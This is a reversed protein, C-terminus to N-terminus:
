WYLHIPHCWREPDYLDTYIYLTYLTYVKMYRSFFVKTGVMEVPLDKELHQKAIVLPVAVVQVLDEVDMSWWRKMCGKGWYNMAMKPDLEGMKLCLDVAEPVCSESESEPYGSSNFDTRYGPFIGLFFHCKAIPTEHHIKSVPM